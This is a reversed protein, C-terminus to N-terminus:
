KIPMNSLQVSSNNGAGNNSVSPEGHEGGSRRPSYEYLPINELELQSCLYEGLFVMALFSVGITVWYGMVMPLGKSM